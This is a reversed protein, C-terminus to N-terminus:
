ARALAARRDRLLETGDWPEGAAVFRLADRPFPSSWDGHRALEAALGGIADAVQASRGNGGTAVVLRGPELVDVYPRGHATYAEACRRTHWGSIPVGALLREAEGRLAALDRDGDGDRYWAAVEDRGDLWADHLTNAGVKVYRRGDPYPIPPLVYLEGLADSALDRGVCPLDPADGAEGMLFTESKVRLAPAVPLLAPTFAGAAVVAADGAVTGGGELEVEVGSPTRRLRRAERCVVEAGLARARDVAARVYRRPSFHGGERELVVAEEDDFRLAPLERVRAEPDLADMPVGLWEGVLEATMLLEAAAPPRMATVVGCRHVLGPDLEEMGALSARVLEIWLPDAVLQSVIRGEDYHAGFVGRHSAHDAPEDPGVLAVDDGSAALHRATAAGFMGKGLVVHRM